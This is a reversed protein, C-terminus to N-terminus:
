FLRFVVGFNTATLTGVCETYTVSRKYLLRFQRQWNGLILGRIYMASRSQYRSVTTVYRSESTVSVMGVCYWTHNCCFLCNYIFKFKINKKEIMFIDSYINFFYMFKM